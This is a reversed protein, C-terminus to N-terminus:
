SYHCNYYNQLFHLQSLITDYGFKKLSQQRSLIISVQCPGFHSKTRNIVLLQAVRVRMRHIYYILIRTMHYTFYHRAGTGIQIKIDRFGVKFKICFTVEFLFTM